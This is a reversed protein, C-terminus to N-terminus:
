SELWHSLDRDLIIETRSIDDSFCNCLFNVIDSDMGVDKKSKENWRRVSSLIGFRKNIRLWKKISVLRLTFRDLSYSRRAKAKNVYGFSDPNFGSLGIFRLVKDYVDKPDKKLDDHVVVHLQDSPVVDIVRKLQWSLACSSLSALQRTPYGSRVGVPVGRLRLDNKEIAGRLDSILENGNFVQQSHMSVIMEIPNRLMVIFKASNNYKLINDVACSSHMYWVSAEALVKHGEKANDFLGLYENLDSTLKYDDSFYHPEKKRSFCIEPHSSLWSALATTGCKPAGIVFLNPIKEMVRETSM